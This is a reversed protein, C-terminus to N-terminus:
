GRGDLKRVMDTRARGPTAVAIRVGMTALISAFQFGVKIGGYIGHGPLVYLNM